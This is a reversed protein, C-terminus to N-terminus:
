VKAGTLDSCTQVCFLHFVLINIFRANFISFMLCSDCTAWLRSMPDYRIYYCRNLIEIYPLPNVNNMTCLLCGHHPLSNPIMGIQDYQCLIQKRKAQQCDFVGHNPKGCLTCFVYRCLSCTALHGSEDKIVAEGCGPRPCYFIDDMSDLSTQLLLSDYRQFLSEDVLDQVQIYSLSYEYHSTQM